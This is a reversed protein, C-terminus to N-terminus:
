FFPPTLLRGRGWAERDRSAAKDKGLEGWCKAAKHKLLGPKEVLADVAPVPLSAASTELSTAGM